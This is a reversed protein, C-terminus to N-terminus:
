VRWCLRARRDRVIALHGGSTYLKIPTAAWARRYSTASPSAPLICACSCALAMRMGDAVLLARWQYTSILVGCVGVVLGAVAPLAALGALAAVLAQWSISGLLLALLLLTVAARAMLAIVRGRRTRGSAPRSRQEVTTLTQVSAVPLPQTELM